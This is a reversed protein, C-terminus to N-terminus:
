RDSHADDEELRPADLVLPLSVTITTGLNDIVPSQVEITGGFAEVFGRAIYLGLGSGERQAKQRGRYFREFVRGQEAAPIGPGSDTIELFCRMTDLTLRVLIPKSSGGHVIANELLNLIMQEIM